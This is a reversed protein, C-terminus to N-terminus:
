RILDYFSPTSALGDETRIITLAIGFRAGPEVAFRAGSITVTGGSPPLPVASAPGFGRICRADGPKPRRACSATAATIKVLLMCTAHSEVAHDVRLSFEDPQSAPLLTVATVPGPSPYLPADARPELGILRRMRAAERCIDLGRRPKRASGILAAYREWADRQAQTIQGWHRVAEATILRVQEQDYTKPDKRKPKGYAYSTGTFSNYAYVLDTGKWTGSISTFPGNTRIKM